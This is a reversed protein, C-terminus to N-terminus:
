CDAIRCRSTVVSSGCGRRREGRPLDRPDRNAGLLQEREVIRRRDLRNELALADRELAVRGAHARRDVAFANGHLHAALLLRSIKPECRSSLMPRTGFVSPEPQVLGTHCAHRNQGRLGTQSRTRRGFGPRDAEAHFLRCGYMTPSLTRWLAANANSSDYGGESPASDKAPCKPFRPGVNAGPVHRHPKCNPLRLSRM